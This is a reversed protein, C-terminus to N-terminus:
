AVKSRVSPHRARFGVNVRNFGNIAAVLLTVKVQEEETFNAQFAAYVEDSAGIGDLSTLAETWALAARERESYFSSERWADLMYIREVSEGQERADRGHMHLCVACGNIQSARIKVLEALTPDLDEEAAYGFDILPKMLAYYREFPNMRATM